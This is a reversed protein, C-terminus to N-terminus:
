WPTGHLIGEDITSCAVGNPKSVAAPNEVERTTSNALEPPGVNVTYAAGVDAFETISPDDVFLQAIKSVDSAARALVNIVRAVRWM